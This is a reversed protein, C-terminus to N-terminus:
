FPCFGAHHYSCPFVTIYFFYIAKLSFSVVIPIGIVINILDPSTVTLAKWSELKVLGNMWKMDELMM